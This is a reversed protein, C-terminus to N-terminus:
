YAAQTPVDMIESNNSYKCTIEVRGLEKEGEKWEYYKKKHLICKKAPKDAPTQKNCIPCVDFSDYELIQDTLKKMLHRRSWKRGHFLWYVPFIAIGIILVTILCYLCDHELFRTENEVFGLLSFWVSLIIFIHLLYSDISFTPQNIFHNWPYIFLM